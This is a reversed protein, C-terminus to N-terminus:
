RAAPFHSNPPSAMTNWARIGDCHQAAADAYHLSTSLKHVHPTRITAGIVEPPTSSAAAAVASATPSAQGGHAARSRDSASASFRSAVFLRSKCAARRAISDACACPTIAPARGFAVKEILLELMLVLGPM